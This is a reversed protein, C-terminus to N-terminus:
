KTCLYEYRKDLEKDVTKIRIFHHISQHCEPCIPIRNVPNDYGGHQIQVIHHAYTAPSLCVFCPKNFSHKKKRRDAYPSKNPLKVNLLERLKDLKETVSLHRYHDKFGKGISHNRKFSQGQNIPKKKNRVKRLAKKLKVNLVPDKFM